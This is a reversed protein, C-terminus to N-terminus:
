QRRSNIRREIVFVVIAVVALVIMIVDMEINGRSFQLPISPILFIFAVVVVGFYFRQM